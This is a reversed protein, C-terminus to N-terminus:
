YIRSVTMNSILELEVSKHSLERVRVQSLNIQNEGKRWYDHVDTDYESTVVFLDDNYYRLEEYLGISYKM